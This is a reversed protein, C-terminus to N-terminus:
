TLIDIVRGPRVPIEVRYTIALRRLPVPRPPLPPMDAIRPAQPRQDSLIPDPGAEGRDSSRDRAPIAANRAAADEADREVQNVCALYV